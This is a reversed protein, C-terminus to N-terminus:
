CDVVQCEGQEVLKWVKDPKYKLITRSAIASAAVGLSIFAAAQVPDFRIPMKIHASQVNSKLYQNIDTFKEQKHPLRL